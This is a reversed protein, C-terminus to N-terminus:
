IVLELLKALGFDLLWIFAGVLGSVVIVVLTNKVVDHLGPWVIKKVESKYDRVFHVLRQLISKKGKNELVMIRDDVFLHCAGFIVSAFLAIVTFTVFVTYETAATLVLPRTDVYLGPRSLSIVLMFVADVLGVIPAWYRMKKFKFTLASFIVTALTLFFCFWIKASKYLEGVGEINKGFALESGIFQYNGTQATVDVFPLFFLILAAASFIIAAIQSIKNVAKM